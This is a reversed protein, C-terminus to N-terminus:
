IDQAVGSGNDTQTSGVVIFSIDSTEGDGFKDTWATYKQAATPLRGDAGATLSDTVPSSPRTFATAVSGAHTRSDSASAYIATSQGGHYVWESSRQIVNAYYNSAGQSDKGDSALSVFAYRELVENQTGTITGDEDAVVVHIEDDSSGTVASATGSKGPAKDFQNYFEWYRSIQVANAVAVTLGTGAPQALAEVTVTEAGSTNDSATVRYETNHGAFRIIDRITFVDADTVSILTQGKAEAASTTTVNDNYYANSSACVSVKLSNGLAGAYKSIWRGVTAVGASNDYSAEYADENKVLTTT